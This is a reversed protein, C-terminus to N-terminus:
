RAPGSGQFPTKYDMYGECHGAGLLPRLLQMQMTWVGREKDLAGAQSLLPSRSTGQGSGKLLMQFLQVM